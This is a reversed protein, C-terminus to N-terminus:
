GPSADPPSAPPDPVARPKARSRKTGAAAVQEAAKRAAEEVTARAEPPLGALIKEVAPIQRGNPSPPGSTSATTGSSIPSSPEGTSAPTPEGAPSEGPSRLAQATTIAKMLHDLHCLTLRGVKSRKGAEHM